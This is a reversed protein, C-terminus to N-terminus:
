NGVGHESGRVRGLVNEPRAAHLPSTARRTSAWPFCYTAGCPERRAPSLPMLEASLGTDIEVRRLSVEIRSDTAIKAVSAPKALRALPRGPMKAMRFAM